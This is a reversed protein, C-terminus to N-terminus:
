RGWGARYAEAETCFWRDGAARDVAAKAYGPDFPLLIRRRGSADRVGKVACGREDAIHTLVRHGARWDWPTVYLGGWLGAGRTRGENRNPWYDRPGAPDVLALGRTALEAALDLGIELKCKAAIWGDADPLSKAVCRVQKGHAFETLHTTAKAGCDWEANDRRCTQAPEPADVGYLAIRVGGVTLRDGSLVEATGVVPEARAPFAVLLLASLALAIPRFM